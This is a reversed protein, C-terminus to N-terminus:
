AAFSFGLNRGSTEANMGRASVLGRLSFGHMRQLTPLLVLRAFNGAGVMSIGLAGARPAAALDIRRRPKGAPEPYSLVIGLFPERRTTVLDYAEAAGDISFRHTTLRDVPLKGDAIAEL